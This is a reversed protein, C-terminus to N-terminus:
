AELIVFYHAPNDDTAADGGPECLTDASYYEGRCSDRYVVIGARWWERAQEITEAPVYQM